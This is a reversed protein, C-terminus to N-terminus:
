NFSSKKVFNVKNLIGLNKSYYTLINSKFFNRNKPTLIFFYIVSYYIKKEFINFFNFRRKDYLHLPLRKFIDLVSLEFRLKDKSLKFQTKNILFESCFADFFWFYELKTGLFNILGFKFEIMNKRFNLFLETVKNFELLIQNKNFNIKNSKNYFLFFNYLNKKLLDSNVKYNLKYDNFSFVELITSFNKNFIKQKSIRFDFKDKNFNQTEELYINLLLNKYLNFTNEYEKELKYYFFLNNCPFRFTLNNVIYISFINSIISIIELNDKIFNTPPFLIQRNLKLIGFCNIYSNNNSEAYSYSPLFFDVFNYYLDIHSHQYISINHIMIKKLYFFDGLLFNNCGLYYYLNNNFKGNYKKSFNCKSKSILNNSDISLDLAGMSAASSCLYTVSLFKNLIKLLNFFSRFSTSKYTNKLENSYILLNNVNNNKKKLFNLLSNRGELAKLFLKSTLGLSIYKYTLNNNSGLYFISINDEWLFKKRIKANLIPNEFRLNLNILFINKVKIFDSLNFIYNYDFDENILKSPSYTIKESFNYLDNSGTFSMLTKIKILSFIDLFEGIFSKLNISNNLSKILFLIGKSINNWTTKILNFNTKRKKIDLFNIYNKEEFNLLETKSNFIKLDIENFNQIMDNFDELFDYIEFLGLIDNYYSIIEKDDSLFDILNRDLGFFVNENILFEEINIDLNNEYSYLDILALNEEYQKKLFNFKNSSITINKSRTNEINLNSFFLDFDFLWQAFFINNKYLNLNLKKYFLTGKNNYFDLSYWPFVNTNLSYKMKPKILELDLTKIFTENSFLNFDSYKGELFDLEKKIFKDFNKELFIDFFNNIVSLNIFYFFNYDRIKIYFKSNFKSRFFYKYSDLKFYFNNSTYFKTNRLLPYGLQQLTLSDGLYRAKETIWSINLDIDYQPLVRLIKDFNSYVRISSCLSDSLDISTLYLDDWSRYQLAYTKGTLAGVPCFDTINSGLETTLLRDTYLGIESYYGRGLMGLAYNGEVENLFRVCRTCHICRTLIVKIMPHCMFDDVSRKFDKTLFFRGRDGGYIMSQEQLDCEGGQDCVPCDLPHNVLLFEMIGERAKKVLITDTKIISNYSVDMACSVIPKQSTSLEVLCMRCNGAISLNSHYCYHPIIYNLNVCLDLISINSLSNLKRKTNQLLFVLLKYNYVKRNLSFTYQGKSTKVLNLIREKEERFVKFKSVKINKYFFNM